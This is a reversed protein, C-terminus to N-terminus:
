LNKKQELQIYPLYYELYEKLMTNVGRGTMTAGSLGDVHHPDLPEGKEGKIMNVSQLVSNKDFIKKNKYRNKVEATTIRAGLGPTESKHDFVVGRITALDNNLAIYGSIWDWLGAGFMPFIYVDASPSNAEEKYLFVPFYRKEPPTKHNKQISIREAMLPEGAANKTQIEGKSNILFSQVHSQYLAIITEQDAHIKSIDMVASLIKKKADLELQEDQLPKLSVSIMSLLGGLLLTM